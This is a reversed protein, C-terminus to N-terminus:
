RVKYRPPFFVRRRTGSGTVYVFAFYMYGYIIIRIYNCTPFRLPNGSNDSM